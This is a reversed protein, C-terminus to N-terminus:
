FQTSVKMVITCGNNNYENIQNFRYFTGIFIESKGNNECMWLIRLLSIIHTHGVCSALAFQFKEKLAWFHWKKKNCLVCGVTFCFLITIRRQSAEFCVSWAYVIYWRFGVWHWTGYVCTFVHGYARNSTTLSLLTEIKKCHLSHTYYQLILCWIFKRDFVIPLVIRALWLPFYPTWALMSAVIM